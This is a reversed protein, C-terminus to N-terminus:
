GDIAGHIASGYPKLKDYGDVHVLYHPGKNVYVRRRLRRKKRSMVGDPDLVLLLQRVTDRYRNLDFNSVSNNTGCTSCAIAFESLWFRVCKLCKM